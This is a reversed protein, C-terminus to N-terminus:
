KATSAEDLYPWSVEKDVATSDDGIDLFDCSVLKFLLTNEPDTGFKLNSKLM